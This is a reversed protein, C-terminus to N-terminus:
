DDVVSMDNVVLRQPGFEVGDIESLAARHRHMFDRLFQGSRELDEDLIKRKTTEDDQVSM